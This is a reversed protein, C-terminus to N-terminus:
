NLLVCKSFVTDHLRHKDNIIVTMLAQSPGFKVSWPTSVALFSSLVWFSKVEESLEHVHVRVAIQNWSILKALLGFFFKLVM